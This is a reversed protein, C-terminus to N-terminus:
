FITWSTLYEDFKSQIQSTDRIRMIIGLEDLATKQTAQKGDAKIKGKNKQWANKVHWQCLLITAGPYVQGGENDRILLTFLYTKHSTTEHTGDICVTKASKLKLMNKQFETQFGYMFGLSSSWILNSCTYSGDEKSLTIWEKISINEGYEEKKNGLFIVGKMEDNVINYIDIYSLYMDRRQILTLSDSNNPFAANWREGKCPDM